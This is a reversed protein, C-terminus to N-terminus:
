HTPSPCLIRIKQEPRSDLPRVVVAHNVWDLSLWGTVDDGPLLGPWDIEARNTAKDGAHLSFGWKEQHKGDWGLWVHGLVLLEGNLVEFTEPIFGDCWM